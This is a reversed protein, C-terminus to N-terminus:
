MALEQWKKSSPCLRSWQIFQTGTEKSIELEIHTVGPDAKLEKVANMADNKKNFNRNFVPEKFSLAVIEFSKPM